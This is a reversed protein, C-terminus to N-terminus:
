QQPAEPAEQEEEDSPLLGFMGFLDNLSIAEGNLAAQGDNFTFSATINDNDVKTIHFMQGMAAFGKVQQSALKGADEPSYGELQAVQTMLETAMPMPIVMRTDLSKVYRGIMQEASTVQSPANQPDKFNIDLNFTSEGQANKWNVPGFNLKPSGKLLLPFQEAIMASFAQLYAEPDSVVEPNALLRRSGENYAAVAQALAEADVDTLTVDLKGSGIAKGQVTLADLAFNGLLSLREGGSQVDTKSYLSLGDIVAVEKGDVQFSLKNVLTRLQEFTQQSDTNFSLGNFGAQVLQDNEDKVKISASDLTGELTVKEGKSDVEAKILGGSFSAQEDGERYDIPVINIRSANSGDFAIHTMANILSQDKTLEFLPQTTPNKELETHVAALGPMFNFSAIQPLPGHTITENFIISQNEALVPKATGPTTKVVLQLQSQFIGRRYNEASVYLGAAPLKQTLEQNTQNVVDDLHDEVQKGIYWSSGTWIVGLAVIVGVAVLSKKM